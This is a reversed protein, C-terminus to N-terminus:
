LKFDDMDTGVAKDGDSPPRPGRTSGEPEVIKLNVRAREKAGVVRLLTRLAKATQGERGIVKGMDTPNLHLSILVGMEDVTRDTKVDKPNDVLAKVVFEVFEQDQNSAM